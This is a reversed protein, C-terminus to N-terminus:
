WPRRRRTAPDRPFGPPVRGASTVVVLKHGALGDVTVDHLELSGGGLADTARTAAISEARVDGRKWAILAGDPSLLPFALEVLDALSAVARATVVPWRGRHAPDAALEEGRAALVSVRAALGTAEAVVALFRAKKATADVLTARVDPLAAALPLGPYGGGSGLDLFADVGRPRLLPVASLSDIVHAIAVEAPDRIATLNIATTWALLLRVHEDIARRAAPELEIDLSRLGRSLADGYRPPLDPLDWVHAPLPERQRSV